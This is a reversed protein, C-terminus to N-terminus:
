LSVGVEIQAEEDNLRLVADLNGRVGGIIMYVLLIAVDIIVFIVIVLALM